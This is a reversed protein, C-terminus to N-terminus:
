IKCLKLVKFTKKLSFTKQFTFMIRFLFIIDVYISYVYYNKLVYRESKVYNYYLFYNFKDPKEKHYVRSSKDILCKINNEKMKIGILIEENYLFINQDLPFIKEAVCRKMVLFCGSSSFRNKITDSHFKNKVGAFMFPLLKNIILRCKVKATPEIGYIYEQPKTENIYVDPWLIVDHKLNLLLNDLTNTSFNVDPNSLVVVDGSSNSYALNNGSSYGSNQDHLILKVNDILNLKNIIKNNINSNNDVVITEFRPNTAFQQAIRLCNAWDNYNVLL